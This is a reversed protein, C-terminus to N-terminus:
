MVSYGAIIDCPNDCFRGADRDRIQQFALSILKNMYTFTDLQFQKNTRIPFQYLHFVREASSHNALIVDQGLNAIGDTNRSSSQLSGTPWHRREQKQTGSPNALHAQKNHNRKYTLKTHGILRLESLSESSEQKIVFLSCQLNLKRHACAQLQDTRISDLIM